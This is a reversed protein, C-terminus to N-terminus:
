AKKCAMQILGGMISFCVVAGEGVAGTVKLAASARFARAPM